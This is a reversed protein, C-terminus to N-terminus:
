AARVRVEVHNAAFDVRMSDIVTAVIVKREDSSCREFSHQLETLRAEMAPLRAEADAIRVADMRLAEVRTTLAQAEAALTLMTADHIQREMETAARAARVNAEAAARKAAGLAAETERLATAHHAAGANERLRALEQRALRQAEDSSLLLRTATLAATELPEAHLYRNAHPCPVTDGQARPVPHRYMRVREGGRPAQRHGFLGTNCTSCRLISTLLYRTGSPKQHRALALREAIVAQIREWEAASLPADPMFDALLVPATTAEEANLEHAPTPAGDHKLRGYVYDGKHMPNTAIDRVNSASWPTTGARPAGIAELERAIQAFAKRQRIGDFLHQLAVQEAPNVRLRFHHDAMRIREGDPVMRVFASTDNRALWRDYGYPARTAVFHGKKLSTRTGRTTRKRTDALEQHAKMNKLASTIFEVMGEDGGDGYTVHKKDTTYCLQVGQLKCLFEVYFTYRPDATRALRDRDRVYLRQFPANGSQILALLADLGSRKTTTGSVGDDGWRLELPIDFGDQLAREANTVHQDQVASENADSKRAYSAATRTRDQPALRTARAHQDTM